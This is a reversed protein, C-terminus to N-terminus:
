ESPNNVCEGCISEDDSDSDSDTPIDEFEFGEGDVFGDPGYWGNNAQVIAWDEYTYGWLGNILPIFQGNIATENSM